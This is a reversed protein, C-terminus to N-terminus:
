LRLGRFLAGKVIDHAFPIYSLIYWTLALLQVISALITLLASHLLVACLITVVMTIIYVTSAIWRGESFMSRLQRAPGALFLTSGLCMLSGLTFFIGFFVYDASFVTVWSLILLVAGLAACVLCGQVRQKFTLSPCLSEHSDTGAAEDLAGGSTTVNIISSVKDM